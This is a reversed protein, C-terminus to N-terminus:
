KSFTNYNFLFINVLIVSFYCAFFLSYWDGRIIKDSRLSMQDNMTHTTKNDWSKSIESKNPPYWGLIAFCLPVKGHYLTDFFCIKYGNKFMRKWQDATIQCLRCISEQLAGIFGNDQFLNGWRAKSADNYEMSHSSQMFANFECHLESKSMELLTTWQKIQDSEQLLDTVTTVLHKIFEDLIEAEEQTCLM